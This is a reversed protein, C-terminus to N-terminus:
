SSSRHFFILDLIIIILSSAAISIASRLLIQLLESWAFTGILFYTLHHVSLITLMFFLYNVFGLRGISPSQMTNEINGSFANLLVPRIFGCLTCAFANIGMQSSFIDVCLGLVFSSILTLWRPTNYPLLIIFWVYIMPNVYYWLCINDVILVQFFILLVFQLIYITIDKIM